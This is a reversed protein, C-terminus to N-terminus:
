CELIKWESFILQNKNYYQTIDHGKLDFYDQLDKKTKFEKIENTKINKIIVNNCTNIFNNFCSGEKYKIQKIYLLTWNEYQGGGNLLKHSIIAQKLRHEKAFKKQNDCEIEEGTIINKAKFVIPNKKIKPNKETLKINKYIDDINNYEEKSILKPLINKPIVINIVGM